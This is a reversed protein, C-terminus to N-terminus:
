VIHGMVYPRRHVRDDTKRRQRRRMKIVPFLYLVIQRLDRSRAIMQEAQDVIYQIHAANLASLYLNLLLLRRKGLDHM